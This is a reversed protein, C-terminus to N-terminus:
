EWGEDPRFAFAPAVNELPLDDLWRTERLVPEAFAELDARTAADLELADIALGPRATATESPATQPPPTALGGAFADAAVAATPAAALFTRRNM